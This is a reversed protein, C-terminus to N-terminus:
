SRVMLKIVNNLSILYKSSQSLAVCGYHLNYLSIDTKLDSVWVIPFNPFTVM